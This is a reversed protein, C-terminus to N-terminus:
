EYHVPRRNSESLRSWSGGALPRILQYTDYRYTAACPPCISTRRDGCPLYIVKDPTDQTDFASLIEGTDADITRVTGRLRIPRVCGDAVKATSLWERYDDRGSRALL